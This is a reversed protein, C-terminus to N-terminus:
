KSQRVTAWRFSLEERSATTDAFVSPRGVRKEVDGESQALVTRVDPVTWVM